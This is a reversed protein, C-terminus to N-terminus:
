RRTSQTTVVEPCACRPMLRAAMLAKRAAADDRGLVAFEAESMSGFRRPSSGSADMGGAGANSSSSSSSSHFEM